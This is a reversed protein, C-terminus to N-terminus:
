RSPQMSATASLSDFNPLMLAIRRARSKQRSSPAFIHTSSVQPESTVVAATSPKQDVERDRQHEGAPDYARARSGRIAAPQARHRERHLHRGLGELHLHRGELGLGCALWGRRVGREARRM